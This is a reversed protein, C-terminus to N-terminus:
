KLNKIAYDSFVFDLWRFFVLAVAMYIPTQMKFGYPKAFFRCLSSVFLIALTALLVFVIYRICSTKRIWKMGKEKANDILSAFVNLVRLAAIGLFVVAIWFIPKIFEVSEVKDIKQIILQYYNGISIDEVTAIPLLALLLLVIACILDKRVSWTNFKKTAEKTLEYRERKEM